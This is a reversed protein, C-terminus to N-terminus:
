ADEDQPLDVSRGARAMEVAWAGRASKVPDLWGPRETQPSKGYGAALAMCEVLAEDDCTVPMSMLTGIFLDYYEDHTWAGAAQKAGTTKVTM